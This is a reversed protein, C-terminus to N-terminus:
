DFSQPDSRRLLAEYVRPERADEQGIQRLPAVADDPNWHVIQENVHAEADLM